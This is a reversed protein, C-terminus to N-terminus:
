NIRMDDFLENELMIKPTTFTAGFDPIFATPKDELFFLVSKIMTDNFRTNDFRYFLIKFGLNKLEWKLGNVEYAFYPQKTVDSFTVGIKDFQLDGLMLIDVAEHMVTLFSICQLLANDVVNVIEKDRKQKTYKDFHPFFRDLFAKSGELIDSLKFESKEVLIKYSSSVLSEEEPYGSIGGTYPIFGGSEKYSDLRVVSYVRRLNPCNEIYTMLMLNTLVSRFESEDCELVTENESGYIKNSEKVSCTGKTALDIYEQHPEIKPLEKNIKKVLGFKDLVEVSILENEEVLRIIKDTESKTIDDYKGGSRVEKL